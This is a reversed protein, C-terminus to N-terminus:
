WYGDPVPVGAAELDARTARGHELARGNRYAMASAEQEDLQCPFEIGGYPSCRGDDLFAIWGRGSSLDIELDRWLRIKWFERHVTQPDLAHGLVLELFQNVLVRAKEGDTM